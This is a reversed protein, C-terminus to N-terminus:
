HIKSLLVIKHQNLEINILLQSYISIILKNYNQNNNNLNVYNRM